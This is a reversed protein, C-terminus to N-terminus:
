VLIGDVEEIFPQAKPRDACVYSYVPEEEPLSSEGKVKASNCLRPGVLFLLRGLRNYASAYGHM